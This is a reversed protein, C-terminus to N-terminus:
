EQEAEWRKHQEDEAKRWDERWQIWSGKGGTLMKFMDTQAYASREHESDRYVHRWGHVLGATIFNPLQWMGGSWWLLLGLLWDGTFAFVVAGVILSLLMYNEIQRVHVHEHREIRSDIKEDPGIDAMPHYVIGRGLTTSYKWKKGFWPKWTAIMVAGTQWKLGQAFGLLISLLVYPYSVTLAWPLTVALLALQSLFNM